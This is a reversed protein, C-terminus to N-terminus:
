KLSILEEYHIKFQDRSIIKSTEYMQWLSSVVLQQAYTIGSESASQELKTCSWGGINGNAAKTIEKVWGKAKKNLDKSLSLSDIISDTDNLNLFRKSETGEDTPTAVVDNKKKLFFYAAVAALLLGIILPLMKKM